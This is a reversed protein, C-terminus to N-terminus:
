VPTTSDPQQTTGAARVAPAEEAGADEVEPAEYDQDPM